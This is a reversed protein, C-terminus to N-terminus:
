PMRLRIVGKVTKPDDVAKGKRIIILRGDLALAVARERVRKLLRQWADPALQKAAETPCISKDPGRAGVLGLITEDIASDAVRARPQEAPNEM